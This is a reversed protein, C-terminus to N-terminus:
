LSIRPLDPSVARPLVFVVRIVVPRGLLSAEGVCLSAQGSLGDYFRPGTFCVQRQGLLHLLAEIYERDRESADERRVRSYNGFLPVFKKTWLLHLSRQSPTLDQWVREPIRTYALYPFDRVAERNPARQRIAIMQM